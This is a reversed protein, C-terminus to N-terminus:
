PSSLGPILVRHPRFKGYGDPGAGPGVWGGACYTSARERPYLLQPMASVVWGSRDSTLALTSSYM